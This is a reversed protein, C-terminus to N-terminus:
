DIKLDLKPSNKGSSDETNDEKTLESVHKINKKKKNVIEFEKQIEEENDQDESISNSMEDNQNKM